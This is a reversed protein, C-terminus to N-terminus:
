NLYGQVQGSETLALVFHCYLTIEIICQGIYTRFIHM